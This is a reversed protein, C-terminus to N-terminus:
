RAPALLDAIAALGRIDHIDHPYAPVDVRIAKSGEDELSSELAMLHIADMKGQRTDDEATQRLREIVGSDLCVASERIAAEIDATAPLDGFMPHVRNVVFADRAMNQERLR